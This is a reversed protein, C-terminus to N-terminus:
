SVLGVVCSVIIIGIVIKIWGWAIDDDYVISRLGSLVFGIITLGIGIGALTYGAAQWNM